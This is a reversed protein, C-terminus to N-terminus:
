INAEGTARGLAARVIQDIRSGSLYKENLLAVVMAKIEVSTDYLLKPPQPQIRATPGFHNGFAQSQTYGRTFGLDLNGKTFEDVAIKLSASLSPDLPLLRGNDFYRPTVTYTYTGFFPSIGQHVAGLVHVWRFKHIPANISSRAPEKADQAHDAPTEFQLQNFIYYPSETGPQCQITFGALNKASKKDLNFALLTKADGRYATFSLSRKKATVSAMANGRKAVFREVIRDIFGADYRADVARQTCATGPHDDRPRHAHEERGQASASQPRHDTQFDDLNARCLGEGDGGVV